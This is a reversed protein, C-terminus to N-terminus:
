GSFFDSFGLFLIYYNLSLFFQIVSFCMLLHESESPLLSIFALLLVVISNEICCVPLCSVSCQQQLSPQGPASISVYNQKLHIHTSLVQSLLISLICSQASPSASIHHQCCLAEALGAPAEPIPVVRWSQQCGASIAPGECRWIGPARPLTLGPALDKGIHPRPWIIFELLNSVTCSSVASAQSTVKCGAM